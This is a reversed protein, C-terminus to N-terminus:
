AFVEGYRVSFVILKGVVFPRVTHTLLFLNSPLPLFILFRNEEEEEM